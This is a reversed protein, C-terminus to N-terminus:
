YSHHPPLQELPTPQHGWHRAGSPRTQTWDKDLGVLQLLVDKSHVPLLVLDVVAGLAWLLEEELCLQLHTGKGVACVGGPAREPGRQCRANYPSDM